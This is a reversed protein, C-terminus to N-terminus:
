KLLLTERYKDQEESEIKRLDVTIPIRQGSQSFIGTGVSVVKGYVKQSQQMSDAIIIGGKTRTETKEDPKVLVRDGLPKFQKM